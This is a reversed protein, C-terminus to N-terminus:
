KLSVALRTMLVGRFFSCYAVRVVFRRQLFYSFDLGLNPITEKEPVEARLVVRGALSARRTSEVPGRVRVDALEHLVLANEGVPVGIVAGPEVPAHVPLAMVDPAVARLELPVEVLAVHPAM